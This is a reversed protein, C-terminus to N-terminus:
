RESPADGKTYAAMIANFIKQNVEDGKHCINSVRNGAPTEKERGMALVEDFRRKLTEFSEGEQWFSGGGLDTFAQANKEQHRDASESFPIVLGPITYALLEGLTSAGARTIAMSALSYLPAMDWQPKLFTINKRKKEEQSIGEDWLLLFHYDEYEEHSSLSLALDILLKSGLSGGLVLVIKGQPFPAGPVLKHWADLVHLHQLKRVPIGSFIFNGKKIGFCEKWGVCVPIGLRSGLRTARGALANQEHIVTPIRLLKAVVIFPVSLYGGFLFLAKPPNRLFSLALRLTIYGMGLCRLFSSFGQVGRPSGSLTLFLPTKGHFAFIKKELGRSGTFYKIANTGHNKELWSGFVLSPIIHGGTGGAVIGWYKEGKKM